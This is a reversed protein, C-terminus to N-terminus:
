PSRGTSSFGGPGTSCPDGFYGRGFPAGLVVVNDVLERVCDDQDSGARVERLADAMPYVVAVLAVLCLVATVLLLERSLM